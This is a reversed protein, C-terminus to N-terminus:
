SVIGTIPGTVTYTKTTGDGETISVVMRGLNEPVPFYEVTRTTNLSIYCVTAPLPTITGSVRTIKNLKGWKDTPSNTVVELVEVKDGDWLDGLDTSNVSAGSRINFNGSGTIRYYKMVPEGTPPPVVAEYKYNLDLELKGTNGPALLQADGQDTWQWYKWEAWGLPLNPEDVYYNAIWLGEFMAKLDNPIQGYQNMFFKGSYLLPKPNGLRLWETVWLRLDTFNPNSVVGGYRTTEFDIVSAMTPPHRQNVRDLAQAQAVCSVNRNAYLWAYPARHLGANVANIFNDSYYRTNITGDVAKIFVFTAGAQKTVELNVVGDWHSLDVGFIRTYDPQVLSTTISPIDGYKKRENEGYWINNQLSQKIQHINM